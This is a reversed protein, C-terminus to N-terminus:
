CLVEESLKEKLIKRGRSLRSRVTSAPIDMTAAIQDTTQLYYYYRLFIERDKPRMKHIAKKVRRAMDEQMITEELSLGTDPLEITDIDMPLERRQRLFSKAKNRATTSLYAKLKGSHIADAHDWVAYFTDSTLEEVDPPQGASGLVNTITVAVFRRYKDMLDELAGEQRVKLRRLLQEDTM